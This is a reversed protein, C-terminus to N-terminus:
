YLENEVICKVNHFVVNHKGCQIPNLACLNQNAIKTWLCSGVDFHYLVQNASNRAANNKPNDTPYNRQNAQLNIMRQRRDDLHRSSVLLVFAPSSFRGLLLVDVYSQKPLFDM